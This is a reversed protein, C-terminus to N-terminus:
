NQSYKFKIFFLRVTGEETNIKKSMVSNKHRGWRVALLLIKKM